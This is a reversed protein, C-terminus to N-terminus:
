LVGRSSSFPTAAVDTLSQHPKQRKQWDANNHWKEEGSNEIPRMYLLSQGSSMCINDERNEWKRPCVQSLYFM